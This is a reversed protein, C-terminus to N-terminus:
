GGKDVPWTTEGGKGCVCARSVRYSGVDRVTVRGNVGSAAGFRLAGRPADAVTAWWPAAPPPPRRAGATWGTTWPRARHPAPRPRPLVDAGADDPVRDGWLTYRAPPPPPASAAACAATALALVAAAARM